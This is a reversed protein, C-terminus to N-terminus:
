QVYEKKLARIPIGIAEALAKEAVAGKSHIWGPLFVVEEAYRCIWDTDLRFAERLATIDGENAMRQVEEKHEPPNFVEHGEARLKAAAFAFREKHDPVGRMPGALYIKM